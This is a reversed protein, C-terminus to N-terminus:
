RASKCFLSFRSKNLFKVMFQLNLNDDVNFFILLKEIQTTECIFLWLFWQNHSFLSFYLSNENFLKFSLANNKM